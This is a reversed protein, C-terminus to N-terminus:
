GFIVVGNESAIEFAEMFCKYKEYFYEGEKSAQEEYLKFDSLLKASVKSNIAGECDSFYILELFPGFDCNWAAEDCEIGEEHYGAIKALNRRWVNYHGYSGARFSYDSHQDDDLLMYEKLNESQKPFHPDLYLQYFQDEQYKIGNVDIVAYEEVTEIGEVADIFKVNKYAMIDLGM